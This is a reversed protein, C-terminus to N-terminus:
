FSTGITFSFNRTIDTDQKNIPTAYSFSIPGVATIFDLSIGASTRLSYDSNTYDSGWISGSTTFLKFYVNDKSDFIFTSGYGITSTFFKNGGLYINDIKSGIGRYDFGRFNNGGLSFANITKLNSNFSDAYGLNNNIFFVNESNKINFYNKNQFAIKYYSDDSIDQPSIELSLRNYHGSTPNFIDNTTDKTLYFNLNINNDNGINDTIAKVSTNTASHGRSNNFSIGIGYNTKENQSFNVRYGLGQKNLKYGFSNSLDNEQNFISYSSSLYPNSIPFQTYNIDFKLNETNVDFNANIINGSGFLNKDQIAFNIGFETDTNFTAALLVNGTNKVEDITFDLDLSDNLTKDINVNKIYSFKELNNKSRNILYENYYDGPEILIKSRLTSDKTIANGYININNINSKIQPIKIFDLKVEGNLINTKIDIFYDNINNKLLLLNLDELFINIIENSFYNDNDKIKTNFKKYIKNFFPLEAITQDFNLDNIIYRSGENIYFTLSYAGLSNFEINYSVQVDFFGNNYYFSKIKQQDFDFIEPNLNSGSKFINYFKLSQSSIISSIYRDSYTLNGEFNIINIKSQKGEFIDFILNIKNESFSELKAVTSIQFFGKSRYISNILEVDSKILNRSLLSFSKSNILSLITKDDVWTNNNIYINEILKNEEISVLFENNNEKFEIDYILESRYLDNILSNIDEINIDNRNIDIGTMVQIDQLSLKTLGTISLNKSFSSLSIIFLIATLIYKNM